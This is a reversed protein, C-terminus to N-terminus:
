LVRSLAVGLLVLVAAAGVAVAALEPTFRPLSRAAAQEEPAEAALAAPDLQDLRTLDDRFAAMSQYRQAPDRRLAKAAVADLAPPVRRNRARLPEPRSQVHQAMVALATDGRYPPGGALMEYLMVGLSYVDSRADGRQGQVQEPSMYDPTGLAPSLSATTIKRAGELLAAGFDMLKVDGERTILVNDPKLDRHVIGRAHCYDLADCLQVVIRVAEDVSLPRGEYLHERLLGGDVWELVTYPLGGPSPGAPHSAGPDPAPPQSDPIPASSPPPQSAEAVQSGSHPARMGTDPVDPPNTGGIFGTALLHQIHPHDLSRSVELERQYRAQTGPDDLLVDFPIKLVVPQGQADRAQYVTGMGGQGLRRVITYQDVQQGPQLRM